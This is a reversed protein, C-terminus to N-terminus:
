TNETFTIDPREEYVAYDYTDFGPHLEKRWVTELWVRTGCRCDVPYWAFWKQWKSKNEPRWRM